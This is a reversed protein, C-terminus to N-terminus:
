LYVIQKLQNASMSPFTDYISLGKKAELPKNISELCPGGLCCGKEEEGFLLLHSRMQPPISILHSALGKETAEMAFSM